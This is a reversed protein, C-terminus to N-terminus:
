NKVLFVPNSLESAQGDKKKKKAAPMLNVQVNEKDPCTTINHGSKKCFSCSRVKKLSTEEGGIERRFKPRGKVRSIPPSSIFNDDSIDVINSGVDNSNNVVRETSALVIVRVHFKDRYWRLPLYRMPIEFRDRHIFVSLVHRCIIGWFEFIKCSCTIIDDYWTVIHKQSCLEKYHQVMYALSNEMSVTYQTAREFEEQFKKFAFATFLKHVQEELPSLTRLSSGRYMDLMTHRLETQGVDEVALDIQKILQTLCSRSSTFRKMFCYISECRGSTTMGGFCHARLYASVWNRKIEYLGFPWEREFDDIDDLRYFRNFEACWSSYQERLIATFWGSFKSTIHWICFAHKTFPIETSIAENMWQDQDTIITKPQKKMLKVFTKMLWRFTKVTENQLFACGFLITRGHNDIGIFIGYPHSLFIFPRYRPSFTPILYFLIVPIVPLVM